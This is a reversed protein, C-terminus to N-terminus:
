YMRVDVDIWEIKIGKTMVSAEKIVACYPTSPSYQLLTTVEFQCNIIKEEFGVM